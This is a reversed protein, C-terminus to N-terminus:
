LKHNKQSYFTNWDKDFKIWAKNLLSTPEQRFAGCSKLAYFRKILFFRTKKHSLLPYNKLYTCFSNIAEKSCLNWKHVNASKDFRLNGGLTEQFPILDIKEKNSVELILVPVNQRMTYAITGDADFFGAFWAHDRTLATPEKYPIDYLECMKKLQPIRKSNRIQGNIRNLLDIIGAKNHLRYRFAKAKSRLKVSGGLKQKVKNLADLDFLDMTIELSAYGKKSILLSGDGDILGALYQNFKADSNELFYNNQQIM